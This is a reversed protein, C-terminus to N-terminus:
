MLMNWWNYPWLVFDYSNRSRLRNYSRNPTSMPVLRLAFRWDFKRSFFGFSVAILVNSQLPSKEKNWIWRLYNKVEFYISFCWIIAYTEFNSFKQNSKNRAMLQELAINSSFEDAWRILQKMLKSQLVFRFLISRSLLMLLIEYRYDSLCRLMDIVICGACCINVASTPRLWRYAAFCNFISVFFRKCRPM